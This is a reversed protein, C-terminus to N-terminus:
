ETFAIRTAIRLREAHREAGHITIRNSCVVRTVLSTVSLTVSGIRDTCGSRVEVRSSRDSGIRVIRLGFRSVLGFWDTRSSWVVRLVVLGFRICVRYTIRNPGTRLCSVVRSSVVRYRNSVGVLRGPYSEVGVYVVCVLSSCVVCGLGSRALRCLVYVRCRGACCLVPTRSSVACVCSVSTVRDSSM